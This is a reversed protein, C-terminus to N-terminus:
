ENTVFMYVTSDAAVRSLLCKLIQLIIQQIFANQDSHQLANIARNRQLHLLIARVRINRNQWLDEDTPQAHM